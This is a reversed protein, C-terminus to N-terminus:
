LELREWCYEISTGNKDMAKIFNKMLGLKIHLPPLLIKKPDVLPTYELLEEAWACIKGLSALRKKFFSKAQRSQEM